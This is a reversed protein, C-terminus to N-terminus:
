DRVGAIKRAIQKTLRGRSNHSHLLYAKKLHSSFSFSSIICPFVHEQVLLALFLSCYSKLIPSSYGKLISCICSFPSIRCGRGSNGSAQVRQSRAKPHVNVTVGPSMHSKRRGQFLYIQTKDEHRSLCLVEQEIWIIGSRVDCLMYEIVPRRTLTNMKMDTHTCDTQRSLQTNSNM